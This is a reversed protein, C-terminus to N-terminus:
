DAAGAMISTTTCLLLQVVSCHVFHQVLLSYARVPCMDTVALDQGTKSLRVRSKGSVASPPGKSCHSAQQHHPGWSGCMNVRAWPDM